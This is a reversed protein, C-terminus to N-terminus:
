GAGTGSLQDLFAKSAAAARKPDPHADLEVTIWGDYASATLADLIARYDQEGEGLPVFQRQKIDKLHVYNVRDAYRRIVDLPNGGGAQVHATDPCLGIRTHPLLRALQDPSEVCTGLHPHYTAVLGEQEAIAVVSNLADGLRPYDTEQIGRTRVAGGGVVLFTANCKAAVRAVRAIKDLEEDLVDRYIFNAGCYVGVMALQTDRMLTKLQDLQDQYQMLNGDFLEFGAYGSEAIDRLADETSGNALYYLDKISTVGGPDGVVGGWTNTQYALKMKM